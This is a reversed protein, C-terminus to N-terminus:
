DSCQTQECNEVTVTVQEVSQIKRRKSLVQYRLRARPLVGEAPALDTGRHARCKSFDSDQGRLGAAYNPVARQLMKSQPDGVM